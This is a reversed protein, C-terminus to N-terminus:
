DFVTHLYCICYLLTRSTYRPLHPSYYRIYTVTYFANAPITSWLPLSWAQQPASFVQQTSNITRIIALILPIIIHKTLRQTVLIKIQYLSAGSLFSIDRKAELSYLIFNLTFLVLNMCPRQMCFLISKQLDCFVTPLFKYTADQKSGCTWALKTCFFSILQTNCFNYVNVWIWTNSSIMNKRNTCFLWHKFQESTCHTASEILKILRQHRVFIFQFQKISNRRVM